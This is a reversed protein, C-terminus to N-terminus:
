PLKNIEQQLQEQVERMATNVDTGKKMAEVFKTWVFNNGVNTYENPVFISTSIAKIAKTNRKKILPDDWKVRRDVQMEDSLFAAIAKFAADKNKSQANVVYLGLAPRVELKDKARPFTAMDWNVQSEYAAPNFIYRENYGVMMAATGKLFLGTDSFSNSKGQEDYARKIWNAIKLWAPNSLDVKKDAGAYQLNLQPVINGFYNGAVFGIYDTGGDKRTLRKGLDITEDWTMNDKPYPVAFKDFIDKNYITFYPTHASSANLPSKDPMGLLQKGDPSFKKLLTVMDNPFVNMNYGNLKVLSTLDYPLNKKMIDPMQFDAVNIIDPPNNSFIAQDLNDYLQFAFKINPYKAKMYPHDTITRAIDEPANWSITITVPEGNYVAEKAANSGGSKGCGAAAVFSAALLSGGIVKFAKRMRAGM